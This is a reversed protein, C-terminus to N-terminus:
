TSFHLRVHSITHDRTEMCYFIIDVGDIPLQTCLITFFINRSELDALKKQALQLELVLQSSLVRLRRLLLHGGVLRQQEVALIGNLYQEM